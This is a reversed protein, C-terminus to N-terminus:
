VFVDKVFDLLENAKYKSPNGVFMGHEGGKCFMSKVNLGRKEMLEVLKVSRDYLPDGDCSVVWVRWGLERVCDLLGSGGGNLPDCYEHSRNAGVPLSIEWCLDCVVLTLVHDNALKLESKTRDLGSFFPQILVLGKFILPKFDDVRGAVMLGAHYVINGGASDGMMVCSSLDGYEEIWEDKGGKIWKLAEVVDDYAAPLRSEPALRYEVSVVLAALQSAAYSCFDHFNPHAASAVVFGGGHVYVLIRRKEKKKELSDYRPLFIRVSTSKESNIVVDKSLSPSSAAAAATATSPPVTPYLEFPRTVTGDPNPIIHLTETLNPIKNLLEYLNNNTSAM